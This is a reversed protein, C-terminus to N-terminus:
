LKVHVFAIIRHLLNGVMCASVIIPPVWIPLAVLPTVRLQLGVWAVEICSPLGRYVARLGECVALPEIDLISIKRKGGRDALLTPLNHQLHSWGAALQVGHVLDDLPPHCKHSAIPKGLVHIPHITLHAATAWLVAVL